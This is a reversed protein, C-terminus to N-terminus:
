DMFVPNPLPQDSIGAVLNALGRDCMAHRTRITASAIHPVIICNRQQFLPHTRPLPEPSTVDLAAAAIKSSQLANLLAEQDVVDGRATNVLVADKKMREFAQANILYRTDANLPCHVSVVDSQELLRNLDVYTANIGQPITKERPGTYLIKCQFGYQMMRAYALGIEGLGIIGVTCGSVDTGCYMQIVGWDGESACRNSEFLRRKAALTLGVALEATCIHLCGPTHGVKIGRERCLAIDIHDYGASITSVVKLTPGAADLVQKTIKDSIICLIGVCGAARTILENLPIAEDDREYCDVEITPDKALQELVYPVFRTVLVKRKTM